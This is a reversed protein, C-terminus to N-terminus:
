RLEKERIFTGHWHHYWVQGTYANVSAMGIVKGNREFDFTFYGYFPMGAEAKAGPFAQNLWTQVIQRARDRTIQQGAPATAPPPYGPGGWGGMMGGGMMGYGGWGAMHGYKTNWMMNPGPEPRIFGNRTVLLEFAGIGTSKEAVIVYFNNSFEMVELPVLDPNGLRVLSRRVLDVAQDITVSTTAAGAPGGPGPYGWGWGPGMMGQARAVIPVAMVAILVAAGAAALKTANM